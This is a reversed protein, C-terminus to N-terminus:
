EHAGELGTNLTDPLPIPLSNQAVAHKGNGQRAVAQPLSMPNSQREANLSPGIELPAPDAYAATTTSKGRPFHRTADPLPGIMESPGVLVASPQAPIISTSAQTQIIPSVPQISSTAPVVIVPLSAVLALKDVAVQGSIRELELRYLQAKQRLDTESMLAQYYTGSSAMLALDNHGNLATSYVTNKQVTIAHSEVLLQLTSRYNQYTHILRAKLDDILGALQIKETDTLSGPTAQTKGTVLNQLASSAAMSSMNRYAGGGPLMTTAMTAGSIMTSLTKTLFRSSQHPRLDAPTALKELSFRIVPNKEVAAQWLQELDQTDIQQQVDLLGQLAERKAVGALDSDLRQVPASTQLKKEAMGSLTVQGLEDDLNLFSEPTIRDNIIAIPPLFNRLPRAQTRTVAEATLNGLMLMPCLVLCVATQWSYIALGQAPKPLCTKSATDSHAM